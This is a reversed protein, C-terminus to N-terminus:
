TNQMEFLRLMFIDYLGIINLDSQHLFNVCFKLSPNKSWISQINKVIFSNTLIYINNM